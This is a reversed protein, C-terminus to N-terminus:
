LRETVSDIVRSFLSGIKGAGAGGTAWAVVLLAILAAGLLVLAYETTAQGLEGDATTAAATAATTDTTLTRARVCLRLLVHLM